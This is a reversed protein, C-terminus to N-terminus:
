RQAAYFVGQWVLGRAAQPRAGGDQPATEPEFSLTCPTDPGNCDRAHQGVASERIRRLFHDLSTENGFATSGQPEHDALSPPLASRALELALEPALSTPGGQSPGGQWGSGVAAPQAPSDQPKLHQKLDQQTCTYLSQKQM